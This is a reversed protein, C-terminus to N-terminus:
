KKSKAKKSKAKKSKTKKKPKTKTKDKKVADTMRGAWYDNYTADTNVYQNGFDELCKTITKDYMDQELQAGLGLMPDLKQSESFEAMKLESEASDEESKETVIMWVVSAAFVLIFISIFTYVFGM